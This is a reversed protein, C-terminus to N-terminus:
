NKEENTDINYFSRRGWDCGTKLHDKARELARNKYKRGTVKNKMVPSNNLLKMTIEEDEDNMYEKKIISGM